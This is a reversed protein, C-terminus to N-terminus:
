TGEKASKIRERNRVTSDEAATVGGESLGGSPIVEPGSAIVGDADNRSPHPLEGLPDILEGLQDILRVDVDIREAALEVLEALLGISRGDM